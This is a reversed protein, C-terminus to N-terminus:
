KILIVVQTLRGSKVEVWREYLQGNHNLAIRYEGPDLDGRAANEEGNMLEVAYTTIYYSKARPQESDPYYDITFEAPQLVFHEDIVTMTIAGLFGGNGDPRPALWLEPNRTALYDDADGQRVEFHLHSGMATGTSGVLGIQEGAMVEQGARVNIESLHAYLTFLGNPHAIVVLNGYYNKWPSYIAEEDPGAFVVQGDAAAYVPTGTANAFEVGHHADRLGNANSGYPYSSDV